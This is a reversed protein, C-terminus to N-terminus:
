IERRDLGLPNWRIAMELYVVHRKIPGVWFLVEVKDVYAFQKTTYRVPVKEELLRIRVRLRAAPYLDDLM